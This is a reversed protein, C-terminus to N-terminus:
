NIRGLSHTLTFGIDPYKHINTYVKVGLGYFRTRLLLQASMYVGVYNYASQQFHGHHPSSFPILVAGFNSGHNKMTDAGNYIGNSKALGISFISSFNKSLRKNFGYAGILSGLSQLQNEQEGRVKGLFVLQFAHKDKHLYTLGTEFSLYVPAQTFGGGISLWFYHPLKPPTENQVVQANVSFGTSSLLVITLVQKIVKM